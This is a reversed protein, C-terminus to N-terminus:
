FEYVLEVSTGDANWAGVERVDMETSSAVEKQDECHGSKQSMNGDFKWLIKYRGECPVRLM